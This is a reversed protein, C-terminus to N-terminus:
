LVGAYRRLYDQAQQDNGFNRDPTGTAKSLVLMLGKKQANWSNGGGLYAAMTKKDELPIEKFLRAGGPGADFLARLFSAVADDREGRGAMASLAQRFKAPGEYLATLLNKTMDRGSKFGKENHTDVAAM